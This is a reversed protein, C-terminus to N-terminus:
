EFSRQAARLQAKKAAKDAKALTKKPESEWLIVKGSTSPDTVFVQGVFGAKLQVAGTRSNVNSGQATPPSPPEYGIFDGSVPWNITSSTYTPQQYYLDRRIAEEIQAQFADSNVAM